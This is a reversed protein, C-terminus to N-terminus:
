IGGAGVLIKSHKRNVVQKLVLAIALLLGVAIRLNWPHINMRLGIEFALRYLISGIFAAVLLRFISKPACISEGLILAAFVAVILGTGMGVDSYGYYQAAIAGSFSTLANSIVLGLIIFGGARYGLKEVVSLNEGCTRLLYGFHTKLLLLSVAYILLALLVMCVPRIGSPVSNFVTITNVLQLNGKGMIQLNVSYLITMMIIGSLLRSIHGKVHLLSTCVGALSGSLGALGLALFPSIATNTILVAYVAAGTTFSSEITLDAFGVMRYSFVLGLTVISYISALELVSGLMPLLENINM